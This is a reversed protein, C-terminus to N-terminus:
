SAMAIYTPVKTGLNVMSGNDEFLFAPVTFSTDDFNVLVYPQEKRQFRKTVKGCLVDGTSTNTVAVPTGVTINKSM